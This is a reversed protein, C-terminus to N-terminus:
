VVSKRDEQATLARRATPWDARMELEPFLALVEDRQPADVTGQALAHPHFSESALGDVTIIEHADFLVHFYTVAGGPLPRISTDNVLDRAAVLVNDTGFLARAKWGSLCIRHHPSVATAAHHGLAGAAISIPRLAPFQALMEATYHSAGIWRVPQPGHDRTLVLDGARLAEIPVPGGPTEVLSGATFCVPTVDGTLRGEVLMDGVFIGDAYLRVNYALYTFATTVGSASTAVTKGSIDEFVASWNSPIQFNFTDYAGRVIDPTGDGYTGAAYGEYLYYDGILYNYSPYEGPRYATGANYSGAYKFSDAIIVNITQFSGDGYFYGARYYDDLDFTISM